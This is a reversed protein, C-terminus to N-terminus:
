LSSLMRPRGSLNIMRSDGGNRKIDYQMLFSSSLLTLAIFSLAIGYVLKLKHLRKEDMSKM